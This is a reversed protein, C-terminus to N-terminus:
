VQLERLYQVLSKGQVRAQRRAMELLQERATGKKPKLTIVDGM